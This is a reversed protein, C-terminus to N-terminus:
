DIFVNQSILNGADIGSKSAKSPAPSRWSAVSTNLNNKGHTRTHTHQHTQTDIYIHTLSFSLTHTLSLSLAHTHSLSLTVLM